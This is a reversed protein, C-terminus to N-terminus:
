WSEFPKGQEALSDGDKGETVTRTGQGANMGWVGKYQAVRKKKVLRIDSELRSIQKIKSAPPKGDDTEVGGRAGM